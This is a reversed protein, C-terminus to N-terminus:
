RWILTCATILVTRWIIVRGRPGFLLCADGRLYAEGKGERKIVKPKLKVMESPSHYAQSGVPPFCLLLQGRM